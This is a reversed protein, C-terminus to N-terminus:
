PAVTAPAPREAPMPALTTRTQSPQPPAPTQPLAAVVTAQADADTAPHRPETRHTVPAPPAAEADASVIDLESPAEFAGNAGTPAPEFLAPLRPRVITQANRARAALNTFFDSV